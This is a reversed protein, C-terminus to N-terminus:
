YEGASLASVSESNREGERRQPFLLFICLIFFFFFVTPFHSRWCGGRPIPGKLLYFCIVLPLFNSIYVKLILFLSPLSFIFKLSLQLAKKRLHLYLFWCVMVEEGILACVAIFRVYPTREYNKFIM